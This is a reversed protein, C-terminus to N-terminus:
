QTTTHVRPIRWRTQTILHSMDTRCTAERDILEINLGSSRDRLLPSKTIVEPPNPRSGNHVPDLRHDRRLLIIYLGSWILVLLYTRQIIHDLSRPGPQLSLTLRHDMWYLVESQGASQHFVLYFLSFSLIIYFHIQVVHFAYM